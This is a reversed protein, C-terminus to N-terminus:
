REACRLCDAHHAPEASISPIRILSFLEDLFRQENAQIYSTINM